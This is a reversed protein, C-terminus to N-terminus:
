GTGLPNLVTFRWSGGASRRAVNATTGSPTVRTGDPTTAELTWDVVILATDDHCLVPVVHGTEIITRM